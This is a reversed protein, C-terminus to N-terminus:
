GFLTGRGPQFSINAGEPVNRFVNDRDGLAVVEDDELYTAVDDDPAGVARKIDSVTATTDIPVQEGEVQITKLEGM